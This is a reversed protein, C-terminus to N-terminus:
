RCGHAAAARDLEQDTIGQEIRQFPTMGRAIAISTCYEMGGIATVLTKAFSMPPPQFQFGPVVPKDSGPLKPFSGRPSDLEGLM